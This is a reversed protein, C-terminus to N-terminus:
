IHCALGHKANYDQHYEEAPWFEEAPVVETVIPDEWSLQAKAKSRLAAEEQAPSLFFIASRYQSGVDPGQRDRTTPDHLSWFRELLDDYTLQSPDYRVRVAEAHGTTGTCVDPYAPDEVHGGIYGSEADVVGELQQFADEVGWFCGAAFIATELGEAPAEPETM